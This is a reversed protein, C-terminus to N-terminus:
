ETDSWELAQGCMHCHPQKVYLEVDHYKCAPCKWFENGDLMTPIGDLVVTHNARIPKQAKIVKGAFYILTSLWQAKDGNHKRIDANCGCESLHLAVAYELQAKELELEGLKKEAREMEAREM